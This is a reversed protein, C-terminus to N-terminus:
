DDLRPRKRPEHVRLDRKGRTRGAIEEEGERFHVVRNRTTEEGKEVGFAHAGEASSRGWVVWVM